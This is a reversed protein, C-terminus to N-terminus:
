RSLLQPLLFSFPVHLSIQGQQTQGNVKPQQQHRLCRSDDRVRPHHIVALLHLVISAVAKVSSANQLLKCIHMVAAAHIFGRQKEKTVSEIM